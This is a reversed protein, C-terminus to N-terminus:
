THFGLTLPTEKLKNKSTTKSRYGYRRQSESTRHVKNILKCGKPRGAKGTKEGGITKKSKGYNQFDFVIKEM